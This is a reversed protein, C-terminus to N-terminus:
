REFGFESRAGHAPLVEASATEAAGALSTQAAVPATRESDIVRASPNARRDVPRRRADPHMPGSASGPRGAPSPAAHAGRGEGSRVRTTRHPPALQAPPHRVGARNARPATVGVLPAGEAVTRAPSSGYAALRRRAPHARLGVLAITVGVVGVAVSLVTAAALRRARRAREARPPRASSGATPEAPLDPDGAAADWRLFPESGALYEEESCVRYVTRPNRRLVTMHERGDQGAVAALRASLILRAPCRFLRGSASIPLSGAEPRWRIPM